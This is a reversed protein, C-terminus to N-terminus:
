RDYASQSGYFPRQEERQYKNSQAHCFLYFSVTKLLQPRVCVYVSLCVSVSHTVDLHQRSQLTASQLGNIRGDADDIQFERTIKVGRGISHARAPDATAEPPWPGFHFM